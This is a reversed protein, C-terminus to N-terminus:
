QYHMGYIIPMFIILLIMLIINIPVGYRVYDNYRYGVPLTLSVCPTGIPTSVALNSAVCIAIAFTIPSAGVAIALPMFIPVLMATLATNSMFNTLIGAILIAVTMLVFASATEGGALGLIFNAVLKGGGSKDFGFAFAQAGSIIIVTNWDLERLARKYDICKTALLVAAGTCAAISTHWLNFIFVIIVVVMVTGSLIMQWTIKINEELLESEPVASKVEEFDFTKRAVRHGLFFSYIAFATLMILGIPALEFFGLERGGQTKLLIGQMVLQTPAGVMTISGGIGVAMGMAMTIYKSQMKGNSRSAVAAIIPMFMTGVAVNSLLGSLIGSVFIVLMMFGRESQGLKSNAMKLGILKAVGTEFLGNGIIMMGVILTSVSGSFGSFVQTPTIIGCISMVLAASMATVGLPIKEMGFSIITIGVIIVALVDQEM